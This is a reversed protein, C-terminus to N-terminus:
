GIIAVGGGGGLLGYTLQDTILSNRSINLNCVHKRFNYSMGEDKTYNCVVYM